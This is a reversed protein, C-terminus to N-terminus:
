SNAYCLMHAIKVLNPQNLFAWPHAQRAIKVWFLSVPQSPDNRVPSLNLEVVPSPQNLFTIASGLRTRIKNMFGSSTAPCWPAVVLVIIFTWLQQYPTMWPMTMQPTSPLLLTAPARLSPKMGTNLHMRVLM